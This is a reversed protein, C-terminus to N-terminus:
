VCLLLREWMCVCLLLMGMCLFVYCCGGWVDFCLFCCGLMFVYILLKGMWGVCPFLREGCVFVYSCCGGMCLCELAAKGCVFDCM